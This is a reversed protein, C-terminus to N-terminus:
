GLQVLSMSVSARTVNLETDFDTLSRDLQTVICERVDSGLAIVMIPPKNFRNGTPLFKELFTLYERTTGLPSDSLFLELTFTRAGTNVYQFKPYSSGPANIESFTVARSDSIGSPNYLFKKVEGTNKNKIYGKNKAGVGM